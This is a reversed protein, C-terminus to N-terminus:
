YYNIVNTNLFKSDFHDNKSSLNNGSDSHIILYRGDMKQSDNLHEKTEGLVSNRTSSKTEDNKTLIFASSMRHSKSYKATVSNSDSIGESVVSDKLQKIEEEKKALMDKYEKVLKETKEWFEVKGELEDLKAQTSNLNLMAIEYEAKEIMGSVIFSITQNIKVVDPALCDKELVIQRTIIDLLEWFKASFQLHFWKLNGETSIEQYQFFINYFEVFGDSLSRIQSIVKSQMM